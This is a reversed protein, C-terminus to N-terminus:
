IGRAAASGCDGNALSRHKPRQSDLSTQTLLFALTHSRIPYAPSTLHATPVVYGRSLWPEASHWVPVPGDTGLSAGWILSCYRSWQAVAADSPPPQKPSLHERGPVHTHPRLDQVRFRISGRSAPRLLSPQQNTSRTSESTYPQEDHHFLLGLPWSVYLGFM